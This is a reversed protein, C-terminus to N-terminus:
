SHVTRSRVKHWQPSAKKELEALDRTLGADEKWATILRIWSAVTQIQRSICLLGLWRDAKAKYKMLEVFSSFDFSAEHVRHPPCVFCTVGFNANSFTVTFNNIAGHQEVEALHHMLTKAFESKATDDFDLLMCVAESHGKLGSNEVDLIVKRFLDPMKQRPMEAPTERIGQKYFYYDDFGSTFSGLRLTDPGSHEYEEFDLGDALYCGFWDLDDHAELKKIHHIRLRRHLYHILQSGFEIAEAIVRLDLLQLVWPLEGSPFLGIDATQHLNACFLDLPELTVVVMFVEKFQRKNLVLQGGRELSFVPQESVEIFQKANLAQQHADAVLRKLNERIADRYGARAKIPFGGSKAELLILTEDFIVLGDLEGAQTHGNKQFEYKLNQHIAARPLAISFLRLAEKELFDARKDSYKTWVGSSAAPCSKTSPNIIRELM